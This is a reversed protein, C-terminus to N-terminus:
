APGLLRGREDAEEEAPSPIRAASVERRSDRRRPHAPGGPDSLDPFAPQNVPPRLTPTLLFSLSLSVSAPFWSRRRRKKRQSFDGIEGADLVVM